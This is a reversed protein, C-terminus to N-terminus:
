VLRGAAKAAEEAAELQEEIIELGGDWFSPAALDL